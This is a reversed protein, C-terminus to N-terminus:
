DHKHAHHFDSGHPHVHVQGDHEHEHSHPVNAAVGDGHDHGHHADDHVHAHEHHERPHLHEHGHRETAHLYVALLLVFAALATVASGREGFALAVLAGAFPALAFISATRAAGFARQAALYWRLSLGYSVAGILVLGIAHAAAPFRDHLVFAVACSLSAGLACKWFTVRGPDLHAVSGTLTSDAAWLGTALVVALTGISIAGAQTENGLALLAAGGLTAVVAVIVRGGVHERLFVVAFLVTAASEFALALSGDLASTRQLGWALLAPALAAGLLAAAAIRALAAGRPPAERRVPRSSWFGVLAAGAYLLAATTWPGADSGCFRLLPVSAGFALASLAGFLTGRVLPNM